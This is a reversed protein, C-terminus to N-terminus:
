PIVIYLSSFDSSSHAERTAWLVFCRGAICSVQTQVRPWSSGRSFPIAVWELVRAQFIGHISFGPLSCGMPNCLTPCSQAVESESIYVYIHTHPPIYIHTHTKGVVKIDNMLSLFTWLNQREYRREWEEQVKRGVEWRISESNWSYDRHLQSWM